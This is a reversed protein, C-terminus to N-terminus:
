AQAREARAEAGHEHERRGRRPGLTGDGRIGAEGGGVHGVGGRRGGPGDTPVGHDDRDDVAAAVHETDEALGARGRLHDAIEADQDVGVVIRDPQGAGAREEGVVLRRQGRARHSEDTADV